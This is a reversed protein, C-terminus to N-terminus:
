SKDKLVSKFFVAEEPTEPRMGSVEKMPPCLNNVIYASLTSEAFRAQWKLEKYQEQTCRFTVHRSKNM